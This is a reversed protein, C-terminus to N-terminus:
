VKKSPGSPKGASSLLQNLLIRQERLDAASMKELDEPLPAGVRAAEARMDAILQFTQRRDAERGQSIVKAESANLKALAEAQQDLLRIQDKLMDIVTKREDTGVSLDCTKQEILVMIGM